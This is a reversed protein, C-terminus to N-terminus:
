INGQNLNFAGFDLNSSTHLQKSQKSYNGHTAQCIQWQSNKANTVWDDKNTKWLGCMQRWKEIYTINYDGQEEEILKITEDSIMTKKKIVKTTDLTERAVLDLTIEKTNVWLDESTKRQEFSWCEKCMRWCKLNSQLTYLAFKWIIAWSLVSSVNQEGM